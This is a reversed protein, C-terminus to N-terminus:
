EDDDNDYEGEKSNTDSMDQDHDDHFVHLIEHTRLKASDRLPAQEYLMGSGLCFCIVGFLGLSMHHPWLVAGVLISGFKCVNGVLTFYTVSLVNRCKLSAYSMGVSVAASSALLAVQSWSLRRVLSWHAKHDLVLPAVNFVCAWVNQYFVRSWNSHVEIADVRWKIFIADFCFIVYWLAVWGYGHVSYSMDLVAYGISGLLMGTMALTSRASPLTRGMFTWDLVSLLLPASNRFVIFTGISCHKLVNLNAWLCAFFAISLSSFECWARVSLHPRDIFFAVTASAFLQGFLVLDFHGVHEVCLKNVVLLSGSCVMFLAIIRVDELM